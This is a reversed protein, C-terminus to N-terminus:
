IIYFFFLFYKDLQYHYVNLSYLNSRNFNIACNSPINVTPSTHGSFGSVKFSVRDQTGHCNNKMGVFVFENWWCTCLNNIFIFRKCVRENWPQRMCDEAGNRKPQIFIESLRESCLTSINGNLFEISCNWYSTEFITLKFRNEFYIESQIKLNVISSYYNITYILFVMNVMYGYKMYQVQAFKISKYSMVCISTDKQTRSKLTARYVLVSVIFLYEYQIHPRM